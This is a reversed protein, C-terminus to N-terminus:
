RSNRLRISYGPARNVLVDYFTGQKTTDIHYEAFKYTFKHLPTMACIDNYRTQSWPNNMEKRMICHTHFTVYPIDEWLRNLYESSHVVIDWAVHFVSYSVLVNEKRWYDLLYTLMASILPNGKDSALLSNGMIEHAVPATKFCFVPCDLMYHPLYNTVYITSDLWVGGYQKLLSLRVLDSYHALPIINAKRKAEIYDPLQVYQHLNEDTIVIVRYDGCWKRMSQIAVQVIKPANEEGQLWCTWIVKEREGQKFPVEQQYTVKHHHKLYCYAGNRDCYSLITKDKICIRNWLKYLLPIFGVRKIKSIVKM